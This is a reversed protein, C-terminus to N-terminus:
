FKYRMRVGVKSFGVRRYFNEAREGSPPTSLEVIPCGANEAISNAKEILEAGLKESRFEPKVYMEQIIGYRGLTRISPQYTLTCVAVLEDNSAAVVVAGDLSEEIFSAVTRTAEIEPLPAGGLEIILENILGVVETEEGVIANRIEM